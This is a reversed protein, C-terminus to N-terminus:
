KGTARLVIRVTQLIIGIDKAFSLRHCYDEDFQARASFSVANRDSVQWSGTLGPRMRYYATGPYLVQQGVMMPRPGVLSMDGRIVNWLQPLEDLSTKRIFHGIRTIRPDQDLKQHLDWEKRRAPDQALYSDLVKDADRVMSRLKWLRFTRGGRGIRLQTYFPAKGIWLAVLLIVPLTVPLSVMVLLIDM